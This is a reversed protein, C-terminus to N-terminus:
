VRNGKLRDLPYFTDRWRLGGDRLNKVMTRIVIYDLLVVAVPYWLGRSAPLDLERAARAMAFITVGIAAAFLARALGHALIVGPFPGLVLALHSAVGLVAAPV